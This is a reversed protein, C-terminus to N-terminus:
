KSATKGRRREFWWGLSALAVPLLTILAAARYVGALGSVMAKTSITTIDGVSAAKEVALVQTTFLIGMLPVGTTQGLSRSLTLLGSAIGLREGPVAGMITSSNPTMFLGFGVGMPIMRLVFGMLTVDERMSSVALCGGLAIIMGLLSIGRSGFRDSLYGAVPAMLGMSVPLVMLLLGVQGPPYGRVLELFFPILFGGAVSVFLLFGMLLSLSFQRNKFLRLDVMPQSARAEILLFSVVGVAASVMLAQIRPDGFGWRQGLTMGLAYCVLTALIVIAGLIDFSQGTRNSAMSKGYRVVVVATVLGVLVNVMFVSRWGLLGVLLGGIPPGIAIGISVISEIIGMARGRETSPFAETVIAMGLAQMAAAGIGQLARFGILWGVSPSLGCLLSGLTFLALGGLYVRKKDFMDGIRAFGLVLSTIVLSYSLVVWQITVFDTQLQQALTPLSVNVISADLTAMLVGLGM